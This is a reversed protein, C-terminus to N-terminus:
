PESVMLLSCPLRIETAAIATSYRYVSVVIWYVVVLAVAIWDVRERSVYAAIFATTFAVITARSAFQLEVSVVLDAALTLLFDNISEFIVLILIAALLGRAVNRVLM